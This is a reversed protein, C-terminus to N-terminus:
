SVSRGVRGDDGSFRVRSECACPIPWHGCLVSQGDCSLGAYVTQIRRADDSIFNGSGSIRAAAAGRRAVSPACSRRFRVLSMSASKWVPFACEQKGRRSSKRTKGAPEFSTTRAFAPKEAGLFFNLRACSRLRMLRRSRSAQRRDFDSKKGRKGAAVWSCRKITKVPFSSGVKLWTCVAKCFPSSFIKFSSPFLQHTSLYCPKAFVCLQADESLWRPMERRCLIRGVKSWYDM